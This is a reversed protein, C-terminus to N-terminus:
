RGAPGGALPPRQCKPCFHTSRGALVVRRILKECRVCPRGTQQYARFEDQYAGRHGEGYAFNRNTSGKREIARELVIVIAQRLAGAQPRTV